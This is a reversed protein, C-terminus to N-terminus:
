ILGIRKLDVVKHSKKFYMIRPQTMRWELKAQAYSVHFFAYKEYM